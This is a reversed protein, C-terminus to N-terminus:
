KTFLLSYEIIYDQRPGFTNSAFTEFDYINGIILNSIEKYNNELRYKNIKGSNNLLVGISQDTKKITVAVVKVNEIDVVSLSIVQGQVSNISRAKNDASLNFYIIIACIAVFSILFILGIKKVIKKFKEMCLEEKEKKIEKSLGSKLHARYKLM